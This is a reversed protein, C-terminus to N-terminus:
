KPAERDIIVTHRQSPVKESRAVFDVRNLGLELPVQVSFRMLNRSLAQKASKFFVKKGNVYSM